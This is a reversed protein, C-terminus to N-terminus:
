IVSWTCLIEIILTSTHMIIIINKTLNCIFKPHFKIFFVIFGNLDEVVYDAQEPMEKIAFCQLQNRGTLKYERMQCLINWAMM